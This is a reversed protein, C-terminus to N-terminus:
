PRDHRRQDEQMQRRIHEMLILLMVIVTKSTEKISHDPLPSLHERKLINKEDIDRSYPTDSRHRKPECQLVAHSPSEDSDVEDEHVSEDVDEGGENETSVIGSEDRGDDDEEREAHQGEPLYLRGPLPREQVVRYPESDSHRDM